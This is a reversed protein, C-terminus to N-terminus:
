LRFLVSRTKHREDAVVVLYHGGAASRPSVNGPFRFYVCSLDDAFRASKAAEPPIHAFVAQVTMQHAREGYKAFLQRYLEKEQHVSLEGLRLRRRCVPQRLALRLDRHVRTMGIPLVARHVRSRRPLPAIRIRRSAPASGAPDIFHLVPELSRLGHWGTSEAGASAGAPLISNLRCAARLRELDKEDIQREDLGSVTGDDVPLQARQRRPKKSKM